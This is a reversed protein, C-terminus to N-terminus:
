VNDTHREQPTSVMAMGSHSSMNKGNTEWGSLKLGSLGKFGYAILVGAVFAAISIILLARVSRRKNSGYLLNKRPEIVIPKQRPADDESM